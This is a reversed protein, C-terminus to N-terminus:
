AVQIRIWDDHIKQRVADEKVHHMVVRGMETMVRLLEPRSIANQARVDEIRKAIKSVTDAHRIADAIDLIQRPKSEDGPRRLDDLLARADVMAKRVAEGEDEQDEEDLDAPGILAELEDIVTEMALLRDYALPRDVAQYSEHWALLADRWLDYREVYDTLLARALALEPLINLPDPDAEHQEILDRLAERRIGSYRGHKVVNNGGHLKCRGTGVHGTGWGAPRTCTGAGGRKTGGCLRSDHAVPLKAVTM